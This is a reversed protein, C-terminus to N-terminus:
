NSVYEKVIGFEEGKYVTIYTKEEVYKPEKRQLCSLVFRITNIPGISSKLWKHCEEPAKVYNIIGIRNKMSVDEHQYSLDLWNMRTVPGHDSQVVIIGSPDHNSITSILKMAKENVCEVTKIYDKPPEWAILSRSQLTQCDESLYPPHPSFHHLFYFKSNKDKAISNFNKILISMADHDRDAILYLYRGFITKSLLVSSEHNLFGHTIYKLCTVRKPDCGSWSNGSFVFDYGLHKLQQILTPAIENSLMNPFFGLRNTFKPDGEVVPYTLNFISALALYTVNYSGNEGLRIFSEEDLYDYLIDNNFSLREFTEESAYGDLLIFYVNEKSSFINNNSDIKLDSEEFRLETLNNNLAKTVIQVGPLLWGSIFFFFLFIKLIEFRFFAMALLIGLPYALVLVLKPNLIWIMPSVKEVILNTYFFEFNLAIGVGVISSIFFFNILNPFFKGSLYIACLTFLFLSTLLSLAQLTDIFILQEFNHNYFIIYPTIFISFLVWIHLKYVEYFRIM